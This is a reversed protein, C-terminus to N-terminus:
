LREGKSETKEAFSQSLKKGARYQLYRGLWVISVASVAAFIVGFLFVFGFDVWTASM